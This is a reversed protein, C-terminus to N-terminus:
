FQSRPIATFLSLDRDNFKDEPLIVVALIGTVPYNPMLRCTSHTYAKFLFPGRLNVAMVQDWNEVDHEHIYGGGSIGANNVLINVAGFQKVTTDVVQRIEVPQVVDAQIALAEGSRLNIAQVTQELSALRRGLDRDKGRNRGPSTSRESPYRHRWRHCDGSAKGSRGNTIV